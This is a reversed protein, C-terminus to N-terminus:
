AGSSRTRVANVIWTARSSTPDGSSTM